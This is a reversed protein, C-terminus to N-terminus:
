CMRKDQGARILPSITGLCRCLARCLLVLFVDVVMVVVVVVVVVVAAVVVAALLLFMLQAVTRPSRVRLM